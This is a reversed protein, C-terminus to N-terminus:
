GLLEAVLSKEERLEDLTANIKTRSFPNVPVWKAIECSGNATRVPFSSILGADIDYEGNACLAVSYWDGETTPTTLSRM